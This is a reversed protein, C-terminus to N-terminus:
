DKFSLYGQGHPIAERLSNDGGGEGGGLHQGSPSISSKEKCSVFFLIFFMIVITKM